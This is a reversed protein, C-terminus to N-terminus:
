EDQVIIQRLKNLGIYGRAGCHLCEALYLTSGDEITRTVDPQVYRMVGSSGRPSGCNDHWLRRMHNEPSIQIPQKDPEDGRMEALTVGLPRDASPRGDFNRSAGRGTSSRYNPM